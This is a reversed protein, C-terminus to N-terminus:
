SLVFCSAPVCMYEVLTVAEAETRATGESLIWKTLDEGRFRPPVGAADLVEILSKGVPVPHLEQEMREAVNLLYTHSINEIGTANRLAEEHVSFRYFAKRDDRFALKAPSSFVSHESSHFVLLSKLQTAASVAHERTTAIGERVLWSVMAHGSFTHKSGEEYEISQVARACLVDLDKILFRFNTLYLANRKLVLVAGLQEDIILHNACLADGIAKAHAEDICWEQKMLWMMVEEGSCRASTTVRDHSAEELSQSSVHAQLLQTIKDLSPPLNVSQQTLDRQTYQSQLVPPWFNEDFDCSLLLDSVFVLPDHPMAEVAKEVARALVRNLRELHAAKWEARADSDGDEDAVLEERPKACGLQFRECINEKLENVWKM